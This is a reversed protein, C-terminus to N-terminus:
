SAAPTIAVAGTIAMAPPDYCAGQGCNAKPEDRPKVVKEDVV